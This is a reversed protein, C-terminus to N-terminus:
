ESENRICPRLAGALYFSGTIVPNWGKQRSFELAERPDEIIRGSGLTDRLEQPDVSRTEDARTFIIEDAIGGAEALIEERRKDTSLSLILARPQPFDIEELTQRLSKISEPTHATDLCCIPPGPFVEIRAPLRLDELASRLQITDLQKDLNRLVTRYLAISIALDARIGPGRIAPAKFVGQIGDIELLGDCNLKVSGPDAVTWPAGKETAIREVEKRAEEPLEGTILPTQPRVIGAKERAIATLTNGLLQTHELGLSTIASWRASLINTADLRGGLGVEFISIDVSSRAFCLMAMATLLEFFTPSGSEGDAPEILPLISNVTRMFSEESISKGGIRIRERLHEIHPSTYTGVKLGEARLLAELMLCTCGKGKTGAIHVAPYRDHPNGLSAALAEMRRLDFSETDYRFTPLREYNTFSALVQSFERPSNPVKM